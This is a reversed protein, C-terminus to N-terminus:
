YFYEERYRPYGPPGAFTVSQRAVDWGFSAGTFPDRFESAALEAAESGAAIGRSHLRATLLAARRLAEVNAVRIAYEIYQTASDGASRYLVSGTFNYVSLAVKRPHARLFEAAQEYRDIPVAFAESFNRLSDAYLNSTAQLQFMPSSVWAVCRDFATPQTPWDSGDVWTNRNGVDRLTLTAFALEGATVRLMSREQVSLERSWAEPIAAAVKDKPLGRLIRQAYFFHNRLASVAIMQNILGTTAPMAARWHAYDAGLGRRVADTDGAAAQQMLRLMYLRQAHLIRHYPPIPTRVDFPVVDRWAHRTLLAEYRELALLDVRTPQLGNAVVDFSVACARRDTDWGCVDKLSAVAPSGDKVFDVGDRLPDSDTSTESTFSEIWAMRRAGVEVPNENAPASFGFAYAVANDAASVAPREAIVRAFKRASESPPEDRWNIVVAILYLLVVVTVLGALAKALIRLIKM